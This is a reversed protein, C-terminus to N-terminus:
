SPAVFKIETGNVVTSLTKSKETYPFSTPDSFDFTHVELFVSRTLTVLKKVYYYSRSIGANCLIRYSM